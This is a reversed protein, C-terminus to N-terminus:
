KNTLSSQKNNKTFLSENHIQSGMGLRLSLTFFIFVQLTFKLSETKWYLFLVSGQTIHCHKLKLFFYCQFYYSKLKPLM